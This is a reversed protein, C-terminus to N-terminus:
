ALVGAVRRRKSRILAGVGGFGLIMLGWTAPEPVAAAAFNGGGNGQFNDLAKGTSAHFGPKVLMNLAFEESGAVLGAFNKVASTFVASGGNGITMNTSGSGGSGQIWADKFTGSLLNEGNVLHFGAITTDAGSYTLSFSGNLGAQTFTGSSANFSAANGDAVTADIKFTAPLLSLVALSPDLFGFATAVGQAVSSNSQAVSFFHGGTGAADKVWKYDNANSLPQFQAIVAANAPLSVACLSVALAAPVLTSFAKM